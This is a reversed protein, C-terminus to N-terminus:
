SYLKLILKPNIWFNFTFLHNFYELKELYFVQLTKYNVKLYKPVKPWIVSRFIFSKILFFTKLNLKIFDGNKVLYSCSGIIKNNVKVKNHSIIQKASLISLTFNARYILVDLRKEFLSLFFFNSNISNQYLFKQKKIFIFIQKKIYSKLLSGYFLNFKKKNLINLFSQKKFLITFKSIHYLNQDYLFYKQNKQKLKHKLLYKLFKQWKQKRFNLIKLNNQINLKLRIFKKFVPKNRQTKSIGTM